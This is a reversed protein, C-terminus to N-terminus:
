PRREALRQVRQREDAHDDRRGADPGHQAAPLLRGCGARCADARRRPTLGLARTVRLPPALRGRRPGGDTLPRAHGSAPPPLRGRRLGGDTPRRARGSAPPPLRGRRPGGDTLPRAHGSAPPALRGRRPGGDTLRRARGSARGSLSRWRCRSSRGPGAMSTSRAPRSLGRIATGACSRRRGPGATSECSGPTMSALAEDIAHQVLASGIGGGAHRRSSILLNIYLEPRDPPPVYLPAIGVVLAAVPEGWREAVRLGGSDVLGGVRAIKRPNRSFPESGWQAEQGRAVMWAVAEDFLSLLWDTDDEDGHRIELMPATLCQQRRCVTAGAPRRVITTLPHQQPRAPGRVRRRHPGAVAVRYHWDSGSPSGALGLGADLPERGTAARLNAIQGRIRPHSRWGEPRRPRQPVWGGSEPRCPRQAM